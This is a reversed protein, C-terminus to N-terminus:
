KGRPLSRVYVYILLGSVNVSGMFVGLAPYDLLVIFAAAVGVVFAWVMVADLLRM